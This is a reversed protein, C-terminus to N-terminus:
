ARGALQGLEILYLTADDDLARSAYARVRDLVHGPHPAPGAAALSEALRGTGFMTGSADMAEVVGDTCVALYGPQECVQEVFTADFLLSSQIGLPLHMSAFTARVEGASNLYLARPLGGNWIRLRRRAGDLHGLVGAVFNGSPLAAALEANLARLLAAFDAAAAAQRAFSELVLPALLTAGLDHGTVDGVLFVLSGDARRHAGVVDGGFLTAPVTEYCGADAVFARQRVATLMRAAAAVEREQRLGRQAAQAYRAHTEVLATSLDAFERLTALAAVSLRGPTPDGIFLTGIPRGGAEVLACGAFHRISADGAVMPDGAFRPDQSADAVEFQGAAVTQECLETGRVLERFDAPLGHVAKFRHGDTDVMTVVAITAECAQAVLRAVTELAAVPVRDIQEHEHRAGPGPAVARPTAWENL